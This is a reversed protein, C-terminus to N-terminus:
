LFLVLPRILLVKWISNEFSLLKNNQLKHLDDLATASRKICQALSEDDDADHFCHRAKADDVLRSWVSKNNTLTSESGLIWLCFRCVFNIFSSCCLFLKVFNVYTFAM